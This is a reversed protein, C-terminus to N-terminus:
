FMLSAAKTTMIVFCVDHIVWDCLKVGTWTDSSGIVWFNETFFLRKPLACAFLQDLTEVWVKVRRVPVQCIPIM